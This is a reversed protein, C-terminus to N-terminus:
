GHSERGMLCVRDKVEKRVETRRETEMGRRMGDIRKLSIKREIEARTM